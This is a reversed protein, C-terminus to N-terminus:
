IATNIPFILSSSVLISLASLLHDFVKGTSMKLVLAAKHLRTSYLLSKPHKPNPVSTKVSKKYVIWMKNTQFKEEGVDEPIRKVLSVM